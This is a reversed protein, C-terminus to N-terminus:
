GREGAERGSVVLGFMLNILNRNKVVEVITSIYSIIRSCHPNHQVRQFERYNLVDKEEGAELPRAQRGKEERPM